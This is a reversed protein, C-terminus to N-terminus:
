KKYVNHNFNALKTSSFDSDNRQIGIMAGIISLLHFVNSPYKIAVWCYVILTNTRQPCSM